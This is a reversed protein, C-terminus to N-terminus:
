FCRRMFGFKDVYDMFNEIMGFMTEHMESLALGEFVFFTDWYYLERFRGGPVVFSHKAPLLSSVCGDCQVTEQKFERTLNRWIGHVASGWEKLIPDNISQM